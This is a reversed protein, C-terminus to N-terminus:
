PAPALVALIVLREEGSNRVGHAVGEPAVLMQGARMPLEGDEILFHGEGSLVHYVKDMGEHSHLRHSQGPEFTNLGVLLRDSRFITAKGMKEADFEALELPDFAHPKDVM